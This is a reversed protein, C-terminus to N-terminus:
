EATLFQSTFFLRLADADQQIMGPILFADLALWIGSPVLTFTGAYLVLTTLGLLTMALMVIASNTKGLYFRHVGLTGLFLWLLYTRGTSKRGNTVRQEVLM